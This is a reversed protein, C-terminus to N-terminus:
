RVPELSEAIRMLEEFALPPRPAYSEDSQYEMSGQSYLVIQVGDRELLLLRVDDLGLADDLNEETVAKYSVGLAPRSDLRLETYEVDEPIESGPGIDGVPRMGPRAREALEDHDLLGEAAREVLVFRSYGLTVGEGDATEDVPLGEDTNMEAGAPLLLEFGNAEAIQSARTEFLPTLLKGTPAAIAVFTLAVMSLLMVAALAIVKPLKWEADTGIRWVLAVVVLMAVGIAVLWGIPMTYYISALQAFVAAIATALVLAVAWLATRADGSSIFRILLVIGTLAAAAIAGVAIIM